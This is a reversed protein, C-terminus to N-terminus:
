FKKFTQLAFKSKEITIEFIASTPVGSVGLYGGRTPLKTQWSTSQSVKKKHPRSKDINPGIIVKPYMSAYQFFVSFAHM